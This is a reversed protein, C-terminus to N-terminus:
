PKNICHMNTLYTQKFKIGFNGILQTEPDPDAIADRLSQFLEASVVCVSEINTFLRDVDVM